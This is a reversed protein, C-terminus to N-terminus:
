DGLLSVNFERAKIISKGKWEYCWCCVSVSPEPSKTSVYPPIKVTLLQPKGLFPKAYIRKGPVFLSWMTEYTTIKADLYSQRTKFYSKLNPTQTIYGMLERLDDRAEQTAEDSGETAEELAQWNHILPSFPATINV